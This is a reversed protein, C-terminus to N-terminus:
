ATRKRLLRMGALGIALLGFSAPEPVNASTGSSVTWASATQINAINSVGVSGRVSYDANAEFYIGNDSGIYAAVLPQTGNSTFGSSAGNYTWGYDSDHGTYFPLQTLIGNNDTIFSRGGTDDQLASPAFTALLAGNNFNITASLLDAFSWTQSAVSSGGNDVALTIKASQGDAFGSLLGWSNFGGITDNFEINVVSAQASAAALSLALTTVCLLTKKMFIDRFLAQISLPPM